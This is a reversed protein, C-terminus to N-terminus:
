SRRPGTSLADLPRRARDVTPFRACGRRLPCERDPTDRVRAGSLRLPPSSALANYSRDSTDGPGILMLIKDAHGTDFYISIM